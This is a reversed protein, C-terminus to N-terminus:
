QIDGIITGTGYNANIRYVEGARVRKSSNLTSYYYYIDDSWIFGSPPQTYVNQNPKHEPYNTGSNNIQVSGPDLPYYYPYYDYTGYVRINAGSGSSAYINVTYNYGSRYGRGPFGIEVDTVSGSEVALSKIYAKKSYNTNIYIPNTIEVQINSTSEIQETEEYKPYPKFVTGVATKEVVTTDDLRVAIKQDYELEPFKIWIYKGSADTPVLLDFDGDAKTKTTAVPVDDTDFATIKIGEPHEASDTTLDTQIKVNGTIRAALDKSNVLATYGASAERGNTEVTIQKDFEFYGEKTIHLKAKGVSVDSFAVMGSSDTEATLVEGNNTLKVQAGGVSRGTSNEGVFINLDTEQIKTLLEDENMDDKECSSFLLGMTLMLLSLYIIRKM